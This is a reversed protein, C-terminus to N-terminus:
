FTPAVLGFGAGANGGIVGVATPYRGATFAAYGYVVLKVTLQNGLTQEFRLQRPAGDGDEWLLLDEKRTVIVQDEPGTGVTTPISADTIIPVGTMWGVPSSSPTDEPAGAIGAANFPGNMNPLVLPRNSSDLQALLWNWRRPHMAILDPALFRTTQVANLQGAVKAYFTAITAAATFATAQNVGATNLVGLMQGGAGSGSLVQQDLSVAYAAALDLYVLTDVDTGRELSQRSVDQQGAITVVPVNLNQWVEDTSQVNANETAQIATAAGTTGRPIVLSMGDAPLPLRTLSNAFPRGARAVLAAQDVLYQPIVLGAFSSTSTAREVQEREVVVETAHREIRQRAQLDGHQSNLADRFFSVGQRASGPSYTREERQVRGVEDYSPAKAGPLFQRSLRDAADDRALEAEYEAIRANQVDIEADIADVLGRLETIRAEDQVEADRQQALEATHTNREALRAAVNERMRAILQALTM